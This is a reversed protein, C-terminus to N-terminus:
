PVINRNRNPNLKCFEEHGETVQDYCWSCQHLGSGDGDTLEDQRELWEDIDTDGASTAINAITPQESEAQDEKLLAVTADEYRKIIDGAIVFSRWIEKLREDRQEPPLTLVYGPSWDYLSALHYTISEGSGTPKNKEDVFPWNEAEYKRQQELAARLAEVPTNEAM